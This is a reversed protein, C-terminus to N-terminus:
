KDEYATKGTADYAKIASGEKYELVINTSDVAKTPARGAITAMNIVGDKNTDATLYFTAETEKSGAYVIKDEYATKGTADYAKIASGEKYELVINTGDVAKTPARGAITAM